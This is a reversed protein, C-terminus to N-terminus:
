VNKFNNKEKFYESTKKKGCKASLNPLSLIVLRAGDGDTEGGLGTLLRLGNGGGLLLAGSASGGIGSFVLSSAFDMFAWTIWASGIPSPRISLITIGGLTTLSFRVVITLM